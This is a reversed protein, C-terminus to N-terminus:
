FLIVIKLYNKGKMNSKNFM